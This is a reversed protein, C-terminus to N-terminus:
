WIRKRSKTGENEQQVILCLNSNKNLDFNCEKRGKFLMLSTVTEIKYQHMLQPVYLSLFLLRIPFNYSYCKGKKSSTDKNIKWFCIMYPPSARNNKRSEKQTSMTTTTTYYLIHEPFQVASKEKVLELPKGINQQIQM